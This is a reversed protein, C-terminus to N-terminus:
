RVEVRVIDPTLLEADTALNLPWDPRRGARLARRARAVTRTGCREAGGRTYHVHGCGADRIVAAYQERAM